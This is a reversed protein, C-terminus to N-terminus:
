NESLWELWDYVVKDWNHIDYNPKNNETTPYYNHETGVYAKFTFNIKGQRIIDVRLFDNFPASWDKTGYSVLVPIKLKELHKISPYSFEFTAKDTDGHSADMNNKNKVVVEWYKIMEEGFKTTDTDIENARNEEIISMIRGMPNGGSYILHTIKNCEAAMNAAITSGESHGAVVLKTKSVWKQKQLYKIIAVNRPVYYSLLNRNSYEQLINGTSDVYNNFGPSLTNIHAMVPIYPKSVIILHYKEIISDTMFPFVNYSGYEDYKILPNPMSGQCFFFLPKEVNEEGKKSKILIDVKDTKYEFVIHKFGFNEPTKTQGFATINALLFIISIIKKM